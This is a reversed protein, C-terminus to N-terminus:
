CLFREIQEHSIQVLKKNRYTYLPLAVIHPFKEVAAAYMRAVAKRSGFVEAVFLADGKHVHAWEFQEMGEAYKAEIREKWDVWYFVVAVIKGEEWSVCLKGVHYCFAVYRFLKGRECGEPWVRGRHAMCFDVVGWLCKALNKQQDTLANM